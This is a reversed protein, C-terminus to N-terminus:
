GSGGHARGYVWIWDRADAGATPPRDPPEDLHDPNRVTQPGRGQGARLAVVIAAAPDRAVGIATTARHAV